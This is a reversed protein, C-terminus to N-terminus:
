SRSRSRAARRESPVAEAGGAWAGRHARICPVRPLGRGRRPDAGAGLSSGCPPPCPRVGTVTPPLPRALPPGVAVPWHSTPQSCPGQLEQSLLDVHAQKKMQWETELDRKSAERYM